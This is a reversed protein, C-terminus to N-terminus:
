SCIKQAVLDWKCNPCVLQELTITVTKNSQIIWTPQAALTKDDLPGRICWVAQRLPSTEAEAEKEEEQHSHGQPHVQEQEQQPLVPMPTRTTFATSTTTAPSSPSERVAIEEITHTLPPFEEDILKFPAAAAAVEKAERQKSKKKRVFYTSQNQAETPLPHPPDFDSRRSFGETLGSSQEKRAAFCDNCYKKYTFEQCATNACVHSCKPCLRGTFQFSCYYCEKLSM